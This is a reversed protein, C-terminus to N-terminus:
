TSHHGLSNDTQKLEHVTIRKKPKTNITEAIRAPGQSLRVLSAASERPVSRFFSAFARPAKRNEPKRGKRVGGAGSHLKLSYM